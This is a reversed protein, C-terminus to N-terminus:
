HLSIPSPRPRRFLLQPQHNPRSYMSDAMKFVYVTDLLSWVMFAKMQKKDLDERPTRKIDAHEIVEVENDEDDDDEDEAGSLDGFDSEEEEEDIEEDELAKIAEAKKKAAGDLPKFKAEFARRFAAQLDENDSESESEVINTKPTPKPASKKSAKLVEGQRKRKGLAVAM